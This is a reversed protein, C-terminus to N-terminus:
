DHGVEDITFRFTAGKGPESSATIEGGHRRVIRQVLALGVGTGPYDEARHLRQFVGFLKHAYRMDFGVGDDKVVYDTRNGVREAGVDVHASEVHRTYKLANSLLNMWVERLLSADGFCPPLDQVRIVVARGEREPELTDLCSHVLANMDVERRTLEVRSLKSFALLDDILRGMHQVNRRIVGLRRVSEGDLKEVTETKALLLGSFGDIARLPARLDHSVSYSFSELDRNADALQQTREAVRQELLSRHEDLEVNARELQATRQLVLREVLRARASLSALHLVLLGTLLLGGGLVSPALWNRRLRDFYPTADVLVRWTRDAFSITTSHRLSPSKGLVDSAIRPTTSPANTPRVAVLISADASAVDAVAIDLGVPMSRSLVETITATPCLTVIVFGRRAGAATHSPSIATVLHVVVNSADSEIPVHDPPRSRVSSPEVGTRATLGAHADPPAGGGEAERAGDSPRDPMPVTCVLDGTALARTCAAVLEPREVLTRDDFSGASPEVFPPEQTDDIATSAPSWVVRVIGAHRRSWDHAFRVFEDHTVVESNEFFSRFTPVDRALTEFRATLVQTRENAWLAFLQQHRMSETSDVAMALWISVAAGIVGAVASGYRPVRVSPVSPDIARGRNPGERSSMHIARSASAGGRPAYM